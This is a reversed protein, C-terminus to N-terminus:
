PKRLFLLNFGNLAAFLEGFQDMFDGWDPTPTMGAHIEGLSRAGDPRPRDRHGTGSRVWEGLDHVVRDADVAGGRVHLLRLEHEHVREAPRHLGCQASTAASSRNTDISGASASGPSM